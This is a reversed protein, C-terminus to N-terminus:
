RDELDVAFSNVLRHGDASVKGLFCSKSATIIPLRKLAVNSNIGNTVHSSTLINNLFM